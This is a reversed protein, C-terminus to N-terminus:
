RWNTERGIDNGLPWPLWRLSGTILPQAEDTGASGTEDSSAILRALLEAHLRGALKAQQRYGECNQAPTPGNPYYYRKEWDAQNGTDYGDRYAPSDANQGCGAILVVVAAFLAAGLQKSSFGMIEPRLRSTVTDVASGPEAASPVLPRGDVSNGGLLASM